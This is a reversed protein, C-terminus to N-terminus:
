VFILFDGGQGLVGLGMLADLAAVILGGVVVVAIANRFSKQAVSLRDMQQNNVRYNEITYFILKTAVARQYPSIAATSKAPPAIDDPGLLSRRQKGLMTLVLSVTRFLYVLALVFSIFIISTQFDPSTALGKLTSVGVGAILSAVLSPAAMLMGGRSDISAARAAEDDFLRQSLDFLKEDDVSPASQELQKLVANYRDFVPAPNLAASTSIRPWVLEFLDGFKVM